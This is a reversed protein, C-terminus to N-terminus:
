IMWAVMGRMWEILSDVMCGVLWGVLWEGLWVVLWDELPKDGAGLGMLMNNWYIESVREDLWGIWWNNLWDVLWSVWGKMCVVVYGGCRDVIEIGTDDSGVVREILEGLWNRFACWGGWPGNSGGVWENEWNFFWDNMWDVWRDNIKLGKRQSAIAVHWYLNRIKLYLDRSCRSCFRRHSPKWINISDESESM